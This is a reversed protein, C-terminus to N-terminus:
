YPNQVIYIEFEEFEVGGSNNADLVKFFPYVMKREVSIKLKAIMNTIEDITLHGSQNLDFDSFVKKLFKTDGRCLELMRVRVETLLM